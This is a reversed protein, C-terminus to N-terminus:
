DGIIQAIQQDLMKLIRRIEGLEAKASNSIAPGSGAAGAFHSALEPHQHMANEFMEIDVASRSRPIPRSILYDRVGQLTIYWEGLGSRETHVMVTTVPHRQAIAAAGSKSGHAAIVGGLSFVPEDNYFTFEIYHGLHKIVM